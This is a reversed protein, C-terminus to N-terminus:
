LGQRFSQMPLSVGLFSCHGQYSTASFCFGGQLYQRKPLNIKSVTHSGSALCVDLPNYYRHPLKGKVNNRSVSSKSKTCVSAGRQHMGAPYRVLSCSIIAEIRGRVIQMSCLSMEELIRNRQPCSPGHVDLSKYFLVSHLVSCLYCVYYLWELFYDGIDENGEFM